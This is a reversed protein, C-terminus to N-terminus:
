RRYSYPDNKEITQGNSRWKRVMHTLYHLLRHPELPAIVKVRTGEGHGSDIEFSAAISEARKRMGTLGFGSSRGSTSFGKGDDEIALHVSESRYEVRITLHGPHAHRVSNAIAEQGIRYLTDKVRLPVNSGDGVSVAEVVIGGGEVLREAGARLVASLGSSQLFESRLSSITLRAEDHSKRALDCAVDLPRQLGEDKDQIRNRLAQLQFGIGAFSQALTDHMEHALREREDVIARFRWHRAHLYILYAALVCVLVAMTIFILYRISYWPPGSITQLDEASGVLLVFPTANHTYSPDVVCIGRMRLLSHKLLHSFLMTGRGAQIVARFSQHDHDLDLIYTNGPGTTDNVLYGDVEVFMADFAGTAAQDATISTPPLPAQAWLSHISANRLVSSYGRSEVQGTVKVEDGLKFHGPETPVVAIGGTEDQVYLEPASHTVIGRITAEAPTRGTMLRLSRITSARLYEDSDPSLSESPTLPSSSDQSPQLHLSAANPFSSAIPNTQTLQIKSNSISHVAINRWIGGTWHSRLGIHGALLCNRDDSVVSTSRATILSTAIATIRCGYAEMKLHYWSSPKVGGPMPSSALEIWGHDARGLVLTNDPLRLGAYYGSYADVGEEEDSSRIMFGADGREGLLQVDGELSDNSWNSSGTILKAGPEDSDNRMTGHELEWSGGFATWEEALDKQFSDHYPLDRAARHLYYSIGFFLGAACFLLSVYWLPHLIRFLNKMSDAEM